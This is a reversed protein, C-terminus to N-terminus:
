GWDSVIGKFCNWGAAFITGKSGVTFVPFGPSRLIAPDEFFSILASIGVLSLM